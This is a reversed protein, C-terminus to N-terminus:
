LGFIFSELPNITIKVRGEGGAVSLELKTKGYLKDTLVYNGDKMSWTEIIERPVKLEFTSKTLWSFNTIVILKDNESWRVFSYIGEDYGESTQRNITQIEQFKGMLAPSKITFNLLRKYFDRLDKEKPSLQGGDFAGNNMWRQHAPVGVYDFISTRSRTGFGANENGAEGVEQGFYLMTPSSSITSLVVM